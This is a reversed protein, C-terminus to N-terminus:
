ISIVLLIWIFEESQVLVLSRLLVLVTMMMHLLSISQNEGGAVPVVFRQRQEENGFRYLPYGALGASVIFVAAITATAPNTFGYLAQDTSVLGLVLLAVLVCLAILDVRLKGSIFLGMAIVIIALVLILNTDLM